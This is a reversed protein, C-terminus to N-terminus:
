DMTKSKICGTFLRKIRKKFSKNKVPPPFYNISREYKIYSPHILEILANEKKIKFTAARIQFNLCDNLYSDMNFYQLDSSNGNNQNQLSKLFKTHHSESNSKESATYFPEEVYEAVPVLESPFNEKRNKLVLFYILFIYVSLIICAVSPVNYFFVAFALLIM